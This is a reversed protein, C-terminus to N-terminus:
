SSDCIVLLAPQRHDWRCVMSSQSIGRRRMTGSRLRLLPRGIPKRMIHDGLLAHDALEEFLSFHDSKFCNSSNNSSNSTAKIDKLGLLLGCTGSTSGNSGWSLHQSVIVGADCYWIILICRMWNVGSRPRRTIYQPIIYNTFIQLEESFTQYSSDMCVHVEPFWSETQLSEKTYWVTQGFGM